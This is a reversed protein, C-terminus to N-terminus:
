GLAQVCCSILLRPLLWQRSAAAVSLRIISLLRQLAESPMWYYPLGSWKVSVRVSPRVSPHQLLANTEGAVIVRANRLMAVSSTLSHRRTIPRVDRQSSTTFSTSHHRNIAAAASITTTTDNVFNDLISNCVSRSTLNALLMHTRAINIIESIQHCM